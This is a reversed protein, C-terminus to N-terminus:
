AKVKKLEPSDDSFNSSIGLTAQLEAVDRNLEDVVQEGTDLVRTMNANAAHAGDALKSARAKAQAILEKISTTAQKVDTTMPKSEERAPAIEIEQQPSRESYQVRQATRVLPRGIDLLRNLRHGM